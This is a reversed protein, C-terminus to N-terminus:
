GFASNFSVVLNNSGTPPNVLRYIYVRAYYNPGGTSSYFWGPDNGAVM